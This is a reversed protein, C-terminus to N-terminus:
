WTVAFRGPAAPSEKNTCNAPQMAASRPATPVVFLMILLPVVGRSLFSTQFAGEAWATAICVVLMTGLVPFEKALRDILRLLVGMGLTVVLMGTYGAEAFASAWINAVANAESTGLYTLGIQQAPTLEASSGLLRGITGSSFMSHSHSTYYDWYYSTLHAPVVLVRRSGYASIHSSERWLYECMSAALLAMVGCILVIGFYKRFHHAAYGVMLMLVPLALLTKEGAVCFSLFATLVGLGWLLPRRAAIGYAFLLPGICHQIAAIAYADLSGGILTERSNMRLADLNGFVATTPLNQTAAIWAIGTVGLVLLCRFYWTSSIGFRTVHFDPLQGFSLLLMYLAMLSCPLFIVESAPQSLVHFPVFMGPAIVVLYIWWYAFHSPRQMAIPLWAAPLLTISYGFLLYPWPPPAYTLGTYDYLPSEVYAYCCNFLVAYAMCLLFVLARPWIAATSQQLALGPLRRGAAEFQVGQLEAM